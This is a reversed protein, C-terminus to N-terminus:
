FASKNLEECRGCNFIECLADFMDKKLSRSTEIAPWTSNKSAEASPYLSNFDYSVLLDDNNIMQLAKSVELDGFKENVFDEMEKLDIKHFNNENDIFKM